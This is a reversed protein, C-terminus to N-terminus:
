CLQLIVLITTLTLDSIKKTRRAEPVKRSFRGSKDDKLPSSVSGLHEFTPKIDKFM